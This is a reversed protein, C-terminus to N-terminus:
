DNITSTRNTGIEGCRDFIFPSDSHTKSFKDLIYVVTETRKEGTVTKAVRGKGGAHGLCNM